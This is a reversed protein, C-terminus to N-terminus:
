RLSVIRVEKREFRSTPHPNVLAQWHGFHDLCLPVRLADPEALFEEQMAAYCVLRDRNTALEAALAVIHEAREASRTLFVARFRPNLHRPRGSRHWWELASDQHLKYARLKREIASRTDGELPETSNDIELMLNFMRGGSRFQLYADPFHAEGSEDLQLENERIFQTLAIHGRHAAVLAHVIVEALRLTHQMRSIAIPEFFSKVPFRAGPEAVTRFGEYTLRYYNVIAGGSPIHGSRVLRAEELRQLRERVRREDHFNEEQEPLAFSCSGKLILPATLPSMSLLRLTARDREKLLILAGTNPM